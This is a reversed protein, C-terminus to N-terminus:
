PQADAGALFLSLQEEIPHHPCFHRDPGRERACAACLGRSCTRGAAGVPFDCALTARARKCAMCRRAPTRTCVIARAGNPTQVAFCPM